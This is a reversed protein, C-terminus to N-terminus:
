IVFSEIQTVYHDSHSNIKCKCICGESLISHSFNSIEYSEPTFKFKEVQDKEMLSLRITDLSYDHSSDILTSETFHYSPLKNLKNLKYSEVKSSSDKKSNSFNRYKFIKKNLGNKLGCKLGNVSNVFTTWILDFDEYDEDIQIECKFQFNQSNSNQENGNNDHIEGILGHTIKSLPYNSYHRKMRIRLKENIDEEIEQILFRGRRELKVDM